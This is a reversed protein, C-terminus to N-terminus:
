SKHLVQHQVNGYRWAPRTLIEEPRPAGIPRGTQKQMRGGIATSKNRFPPLIALAPLEEQNLRVLSPPSHSEMVWQRAHLGSPSQSEHSVILPRHNLATDSYADVHSPGHISNVVCSYRRISGTVWSPYQSAHTGFSERRMRCRSSLFYAASWQPAANNNTYFDSGQPASAARKSKM